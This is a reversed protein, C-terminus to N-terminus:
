QDNTRQLVLHWAKLLFLLLRGIRNLRWSPTLIYKSNQMKRPSKGWNKQVGWNLLFTNKCLFSLAFTHISSALELWLIPCFYLFIKTRNKTWIFVEFFVKSILQGKDWDPPCIIGMVNSSIRGGEGGRNKSRKLYLLYICLNGTLETKSLLKYSVTYSKLYLSFM